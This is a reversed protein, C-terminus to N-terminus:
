RLFGIMTIDRHKANWRKAIEKSKENAADLFPQIMEETKERTIQDYAYLCKAREAEIRLKTMEELIMNKHIIKKAATRDVGGHKEHTAPQIKEPANPLRKKGAEPTNVNNCVKRTRDLTHLARCLPYTM